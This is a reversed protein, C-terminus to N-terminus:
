LSMRKKHACLMRINIKKIYLNDLLPLYVRLVRSKLGRDKKLGLLPCTVVFSFNEERFVQM